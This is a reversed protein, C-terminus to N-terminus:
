DMKIKVNTIEVGVSKSSNDPHPVSIVTNPNHGLLWTLGRTEDESLYGLLRKQNFVAAGTIQIQESTNEKKKALGAQTIAENFSLSSVLLNTSESTFDGYVKLLNSHLGLGTFEQYRFVDGLSQGPISGMGANAVIFDNANGKAVAIWTKMRLEYNHTFFDIVPTIDDQALSEGV